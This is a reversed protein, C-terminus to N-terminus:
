WANTRIWDVFSGVRAYVGPHNPQACGLGWSTIGVLVGSATLPGGSDGQCADKGGEPLGAAIMNNTIGGGYNANATARAVIPVTVQRLMASLSGGSSTTGWGAAIVSTGPAPDSGQAPLAVAKAQAGGLTLAPSVKLVAIDYDITSSSYSPHARIETVNVLTGGSAHNLTNYRVHLASPSAGSVCHAATIITNANYIVGGCFHSTRQLSVIWPISGYTSATGGVIEEGVSGLSEQADAAEMEPGGCGLLGM